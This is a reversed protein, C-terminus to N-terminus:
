LVYNLNTALKHGLHRLGRVGWRWRTGEADALSEMARCANAICCTAWAGIWFWIPQAKFM